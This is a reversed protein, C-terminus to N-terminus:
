MELALRAGEELLLLEELRASCSGTPDGDNVIHGGLRAVAFTAEQVSANHALRVKPHAAM